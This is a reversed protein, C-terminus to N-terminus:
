QVAYETLLYVCFSLELQVSYAGDQPGSDVDLVDIVIKLPLYVSM